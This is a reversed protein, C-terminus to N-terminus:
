QEAWGFPKRTETLGESPDSVRFSTIRDPQGDVGDDIVMVIMRGDTFMANLVGLPGLLYPPEGTESYFVFPSGGAADANIATRAEFLTTVADPDEKLLLNLEDVISEISRM